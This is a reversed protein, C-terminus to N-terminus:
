RLTAQEETNGKLTRCSLTQAQRQTAGAHDKVSTRPFEDPVPEERVASQRSKFVDVLCSILQYSPHSSVSPPKNKPTLNHIEEM